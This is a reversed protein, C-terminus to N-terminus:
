RPAFRRIHSLGGAASFLPTSNIVVLLVYIMFNAEQKKHYFQNNM